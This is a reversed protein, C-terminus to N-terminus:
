LWVRAPLSSVVPPGCGRCRNVAALAVSRAGRGSDRTGPARAVQESLAAPRRRGSLARLGLPRFPRRAGAYGPCMDTGIHPGTRRRTASGAAFQWSVRRPTSRDLGSCPCFSPPLVGAPLVRWVGAKHTHGRLNLPTPAPPGPRLPRRRHLGGAVGASWTRACDAPGPGRSRLTPALHPLVPPQHRLLPLTAAVNGSVEEAHRLVALRHRARRALERETMRTEQPRSVRRDIVDAGRPAGPAPRAQGPQGLLIGRHAPDGPPRVRRLRLGPGPLTGPGARHPRAQRWPRPRPVGELDQHAPFHHRPAPAPM